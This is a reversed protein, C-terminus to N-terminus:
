AALLEALVVAVGDEDNSLTVRDAVAKVEPIANSMAVGIGAAQIMEIDNTDDGFAVVQTMDLGWREVLLRLASAKSVGTPMIQVLNYKESLIAHMECPLPALRPAAARYADLAVFIKSAPQCAVRCIDDVLTTEGYPPGHRSLFLRDDVELGIWADPAAVAFDNVFRETGGASLNSRHIAQGADLIVGGNYCIWPLAHLATPITRTTRPPRGTAIVARRGSDIWAALLDLTRPSVTRDSRVLTDDLDVALVSFM